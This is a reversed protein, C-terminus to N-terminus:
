SFAHDFVHLQAIQRGLCLSGIQVVDGTQGLEILGARFMQVQFIGQPLAHRQGV